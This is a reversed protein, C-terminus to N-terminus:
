ESPMNNIKDYFFYSKITYYLKKLYKNICSIVVLGEIVVLGAIVVLGEIVVLGAIVVLGEIVVLGVIVVLGEIVVLGAIVVVGVFVGVAVVVGVAVGVFVGVAVVVGVAVGVFVGVAVVVGVVVGGCISRVVDNDKNILLYLRANITQNAINYRIKYQIKPNNKVFFVSELLGSNFSLRINSTMKRNKENNM